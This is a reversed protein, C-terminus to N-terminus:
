IDDSRNRLFNEIEDTMADADYVVEPESDVRQELDDVYSRVDEDDDLALHVRAEWDRIEDALGVHDTPIGCIQEINALLAATAKPSPSGPVYHPVSVRLSVLPRGRDSLEQHLSGILGTPGEYTPRGIGLTTALEEDGTSATVPFSRTHPVMALASGLTVVLETRTTDMLEILTECFSRWRLNPEIGSLLVLDRKGEPTKAWVINNTPWHIERAGNAGLRVHPRTEQFDFLTEPDISAAPNGGHTMSLWDVANTAASGMDFMGKFAMVFIPRDLEPLPHLEYPIPAM